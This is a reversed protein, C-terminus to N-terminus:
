LLETIGVFRERHCRRLCRRLGDISARFGLTFELCEMFSRFSCQIAPETKFDMLFV